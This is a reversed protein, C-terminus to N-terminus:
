YNLDLRKFLNDLKDIVTKAQKDSADIAIYTHDKSYAYESYYPLVEQHGPGHRMEARLEVVFGGKEMFLSNILGSGTSGILVQAAKMIKIQTEISEDRVPDLIEFGKSVLYEELQKEGHLRVNDKYGLSKDSEDQFTNSSSNSGRSIYIKKDFPPEHAPNIKSLVYKDLLDTIDALSLNLLNSYDKVITVNRCEYIPHITFPITPFIPGGSMDAKARNIDYAFKLFNFPINNRGLIEALFELSKQLEEHVKSGGQEAAASGVCFVFRANPDRDKIHFVTALTNVIFHYFASRVYILYKHDTSSLVESDDFLVTTANLAYQNHIEHIRAEVAECSEDTLFYEFAGEVHGENNFKDSLAVYCKDVYKPWTSPIEVSSKLIKSGRYM